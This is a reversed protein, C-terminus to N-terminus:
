PREDYQCDIFIIIKARFRLRFNSLTKIDAELIFILTAAGKPKLTDWVRLTVVHVSDILRM